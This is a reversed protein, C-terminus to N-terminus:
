VFHKQARKNSRQTIDFHIFTIASTILISIYDINNWMFKMRAYYITQKFNDTTVVM